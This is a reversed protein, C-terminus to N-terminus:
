NMDVKHFYNSIKKIIHEVIEFLEYKKPNYKLMVFLTSGEKNPASVIIYGDPYKENLYKEIEQMYVGLLRLSSVLVTRYM